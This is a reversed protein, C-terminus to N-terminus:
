AIISDVRLFSFGDGFRIEIRFMCKGLNNKFKKKGEFMERMSLEEEPLQNTCLITHCSTEM